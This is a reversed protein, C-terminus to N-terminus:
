GRRSVKASVSLLWFAMAELARPVRNAPPANGRVEDPSRPRLLHVTLKAIMLYWGFSTLSCIRRIEGAQLGRRLFDGSVSHVASLDVVVDGVEPAAPLFLVPFFTNQRIESAQTMGAYLAFPQCPAVLLRPDADIDCSNSLVMAPGVWEGVRGDEQTIRIPLPAILDGQNLAPPLSSAYLERSSMGTQRFGQLYARAEVSDVIPFLSEVLREFHTLM